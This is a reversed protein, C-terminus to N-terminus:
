RSARGGSAFCPTTSNSTGAIAGRDMLRDGAKVDGEIIFTNDDQIAKGHIHIRGQFLTIHDRCKGGDGASLYYLDTTSYLRLIAHNKRPSISVVLLYM